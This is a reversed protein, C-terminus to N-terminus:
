FRLGLRGFPSRVRVRRSQQVPARVLAREKLEPLKESAPGSYIEREKVPAPIEKVQPAIEKWKRAIWEVQRCVEFVGFAYVTMDLVENRTASTLKAWQTKFGGKPNKIVIRRESCLQSFFNADCSKSFHIYNAGPEKNRLRDFILNKLYDVNFNYRIGGYVKEKKREYIAGLADDFGKCSWVNSFSHKAAFKYVAQVKTQKGSDIAGASWRMLGLIPHEFKKNSLYDWVREQMEPLDFDGNIVHHDLLWCEQKDGWGYFIVEVRDPHVDAGFAIWCVQPPVTYDEVRESLTKWDARESADEFPRNAFINTWVMLTERGGAAAELFQEAFQHLYSVYDKKLGITIYMGSLARSRIGNFPATARWEARLSKGNVMVPPNDPHGSMYSQIRQTDTWGRQCHECIYICRKTDRIPFNGTEWTYNNPFLVGEARQSLRRLGSDIQREPNSEVSKANAETPGPNDMTGCENKKSEYNFREYEEPTFSFKMREDKLWQFEGCCPCPLFYYQQDGRLFGAHIRSFNALTTTSCKIKWADTFTIAARDALACPDGEKGAIYADIEDCFVNGASSSRFAGPSKAGIVKLVGGPYKRSLSTSDSGRKRPDVLLGSMCPTANVTPLFKDRVWETARDKTDRVMIISKRLQSIIFECILILCLTKGGGQSAMMWFVERVSPDAPDDLMAAQHPMRSLRYKGPEANGEPPIHAFQDAWESISLRPPPAIIEALREINERATKV